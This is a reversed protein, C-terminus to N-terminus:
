KKFMIKDLRNKKKAYKIYNVCIMCIIFNSRNLYYKKKTKIMLYKTQFLIM